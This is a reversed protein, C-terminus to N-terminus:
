GLKIKLDSFHKAATVENGAYASVAVMFTHADRHLGPFALRDQSRLSDAATGEM